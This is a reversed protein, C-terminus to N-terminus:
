EPVYQIAEIRTTWDLWFGNNVGMDFTPTDLWFQEGTTLDYLQLGAQGNVAASYVVQQADIWVPEGTGIGLYIKNSGDASVLWVGDEVPDWSLPSLALWQGDPSWNIGWPIAADTGPPTFTHVLTYEAEELDAVVYAWTHPGFTASKVGAVKTGDPSIHPNILVSSDNVPDAVLIPQVQSDWWLFPEGQYDYVITEDPGVSPQTWVSVETELVTLLGTTIDLLGLRGVTGQVVRNSDTLLLVATNDNLWPINNSGRMLTLDLSITESEGGPLHFLTLRRDGTYGALALTASPNLSLPLDYSILPLTQGDPRIQLWEYVPVDSQLRYILGPTAEITPLPPVTGFGDYALILGAWRYNNGEEIIYLLGDGSGGIGWGSSQVISVRSSEDGFLAEITLPTPLEDTVAQWTITPEESLLRSQLAAQVEQVQTRGAAVPYIGAVFNPRIVRVLSVFDRENLHSQLADLFTEATEARFADPPTPSVTPTSPPATTTALPRPQESLQGTTATPTVATPIATRTPEITASPTATPLSHCAAGLFFVLIIFLKQKM